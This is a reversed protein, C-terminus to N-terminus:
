GRRAHVTVHVTEESGDVEVVDFFLRAEAFDTTGRGRLDAFSVFGVPTLMGPVDAFAYYTGPHVGPIAFEGDSNTLAGYEPRGADDGVLVVRARRVPRDTGEYVARGYVVSEEERPSSRNMNTQGHQAEQRRRSLSANATTAPSAPALLACALAFVAALPAAHMLTRTVRDNM